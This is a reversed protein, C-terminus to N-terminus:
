RHPAVGQGDRLAADLASKAEAPLKDVWEKSDKEVRYVLADLQNRAEIEERRAKDESAHSEAQKVM